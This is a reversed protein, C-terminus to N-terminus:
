NEVVVGLVREDVVYAIVALGDIGREIVIKRFSCAEAEAETALPDVGVDIDVAQGVIGITRHRMETARSEEAAVPGVPVLDLLGEVEINGVLEVFVPRQIGRHDIRALLVVVLVQQHGAADIRVIGTRQPSIGVDEVEKGLVPAPIDIDITTGLNGIALQVKCEPRVIRVQVAAIGEAPPLAVYGVPIDEVRRDIGVFWGIVVDIGDPAAVIAVSRDLFADVAHPM